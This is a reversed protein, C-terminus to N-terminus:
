VFGGGTLRQERLFEQLAKRGGLTLMTDVDKLQQERQMSASFVDGIQSGGPGYAVREEHTLPTAMYDSANARMRTSGSQMYDFKNKYFKLDKIAKGAADKDGSGMADMYRTRADTYGREIEQMRYEDYDKGYAPRPGYGQMMNNVLYSM